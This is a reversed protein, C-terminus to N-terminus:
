IKLTPFKIYLSSKKKGIFKLFHTKFSVEFNAKIIKKYNKKSNIYIFFVIGVRKNKVIAASM